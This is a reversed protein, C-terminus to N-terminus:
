ATIGRVMGFAHIYCLGACIDMCQVRSTDASSLPYLSDGVLPLRDTNPYLRLFSMLSGNDMWESVMAVRDRFMALGM